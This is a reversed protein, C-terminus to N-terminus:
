YNRIVHSQINKYSLYVGLQRLILLEVSIISLIHHKHFIFLSRARLNLYFSSNKFYFLDFNYSCLSSLFFHEHKVANETPLTPFVGENHLHCATNCIGTHTFRDKSFFSIAIKSQAIDNRSNQRSLKDRFTHSLM